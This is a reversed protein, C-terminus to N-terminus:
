GCLDVREGTGREGAGYGQVTTRGHAVHGLSRRLESVQDAILATTQAQLEAARTLAARAAVDAPGQAPLEALIGRRAADVEALEEWTGALVLAHEHESLELLVDYASM